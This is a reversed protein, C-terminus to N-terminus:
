YINSDKLFRNQLCQICVYLGLNVAMKMAVLEARAITLADGEIAKGRLLKPMLSSKACALNSIKKGNEGQCITYAVVGMGM